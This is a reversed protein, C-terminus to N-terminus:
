EKSRAASFGIASLSRYKDSAIFAIAEKLGIVSMKFSSYDSSKVGRMFSALITFITRRAMAILSLLRFPKVKYIFRHWFIPNNRSYSYVNALKKDGSIIVSSDLHRVILDPAFVTRFGNLAMKYCLIQDELISYKADDTWVEEEFHILKMCETIGFMILGPMGEVYYVKDKDYEVPTSYGGTRRIRTFLNGNSSSSWQVGLLRYKFGRLPSYKFESVNDFFNIVYPCIMQSATDNMRDIAREVFDEAFEADDDLLM